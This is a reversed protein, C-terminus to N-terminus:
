LPFTAKFKRQLEEQRIQDKDLQFNTALDSAPSGTIAALRTRRITEAMQAMKSVFLVSLRPNVHKLTRHVTKIGPEADKFELFMVSDPSFFQDVMEKVPGGPYSELGISFTSEGVLVRLGHKYANYEGRGEVYHNALRDILWITNSINEDWRVRLAEDAPECNTYVTYRVLAAKDQFAGNTVAEIDENLYADVAATFENPKYATLYIWAPMGQFPAILLTFFAEFQHYETLYLEARLSEFYRDDIQYNHLEPHSAVWQTFGEAEEIAHGLAVAKNCLAHSAYGTYFEIEIDKTEGM